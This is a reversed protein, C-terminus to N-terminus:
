IIKIMYVNCLETIEIRQVNWSTFKFLKYKGNPGNGGPTAVYAKPEPKGSIYQDSDTNLFHILYILYDYVNNRSTM